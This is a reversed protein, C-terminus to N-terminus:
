SPWVRRWPLTPVVRRRRAGRGERARQQLQVRRARAETRHQRARHAHLLRVAGGVPVQERLHRRAQEERQGQEAGVRAAVHEHGGGGGGALQEAHQVEIRAPDRLHGVRVRVRVRARVRAGVGVGVRVRFRRRGTPASHRRSRARRCGRAAGRAPPPPRLATVSSICIETLIQLIQLQM